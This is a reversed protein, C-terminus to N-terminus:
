SPMPCQTIESFVHHLLSSHVLGRLWPTWTYRHFKAYFDAIRLAEVIQRVTQGGSIDIYLIPVSICSWYPLQEELGLIESRVKPQYVEHRTGCTSLTRCSVPSCQFQAADGHGGLDTVLPRIVQNISMNTNLGHLTLLTRIQLVGSPVCHIM